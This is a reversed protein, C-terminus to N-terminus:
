LTYVRLTGGAMQPNEVVLAKGPATATLYFAHGPTDTKAKARLQELTAYQPADTPAAHLYTRSAYGFYGVRHLWVPTTYFVETLGQKQSPNFKTDDYTSAVTTWDPDVTLQTLGGISMLGAERFSYQLQNSLPDLALTVPRMFRSVIRGGNAKETAASYAYQVQKIVQGQSSYRRAFFGAVPYSYSLEPPAVHKGFEGCVVVDGTAYDLNFLGTGGATVAWMDMIERGRTQLRPVHAHEVLGNVLRGSYVPGTGASLHLTTTFGGSPQGSNDLILVQYTLPQRGPKQDPATTLTQRYLYTQNPRHGLYAWEQYWNYYGSLRGAEPALAPLPLAQRTCQRGLLDYRDLFYQKGEDRTTECVLECYANDDAYCGLVDAETKHSEPKPRAAFTAAAVQGQENIRQLWVQGVEYRTRESKPLNDYAEQTIKEVTYLTNGSSYVRLPTLQAAAEIRSAAQAQRASNSGLDALLRTFDLQEKYRVQQIRQINTQWATAGAPTLCQLHVTPSNLDAILLVTQHNTLQVAGCLAQTNELKITQVPQPEAKPFAQQGWAPGYAVLLGATLLSYSLKM